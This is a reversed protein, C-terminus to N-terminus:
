TGRQQDFESWFADAKRKGAIGEMGARARRAAAVLEDLTRAREIALCVDDGMPGMAASTARSTWTRLAEFPMVPASSAVPGADEAGTGAATDAATDANGTMAAEILGHALLENLAAQAPGDGGLKGALDAVPRVGDVMVMAMRTMSALKISRAAMEAAGKATKRFVGTQAM